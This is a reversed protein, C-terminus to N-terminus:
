HGALYIVKYFGHSIKADPSSFERAIACSGDYPFQISCRSAVTLSTSAQRVPAQLSFDM